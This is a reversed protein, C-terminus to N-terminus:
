LNERLFELTRKWADTAASTNYTEKRTDNFFAHKAGPYSRYSFPKGAKKMAEAFGPVTETIRADDGGYLGLVVAGIAPIRALDPPEGYFILCARLESDLTALRASLGGGMCFGRSAVRGPDVEPRTRLFRAIVLLDRRFAERQSPSMVKMLSRLSRQEEPGRAELLAGMKTPDHQVEPPASRLFAMGALIQQPGM